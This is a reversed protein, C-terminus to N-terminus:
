ASYIVRFEGKVTDGFDTTVTVVVSYTTNAVGGAVAVKALTRDPGGPTLTLAEVNSKTASVVSAIRDGAALLNVFDLALLVSESAQLRAPVTAIVSGSSRKPLIVTFEEAVPRQDSPASGGVEAAVADAIDTIDSTELSLTANANVRSSAFVLQDTKTKIAATDSKAAAVDASVSSAPTGIKTNITNAVTAATSANTSATSAASAATSASGAITSLVADINDKILKGISGATTLGSVLAAWIVGTLTTREGSTLTMADGAQSATKTADYAITLTMASGVAAPSAPLNDTKAKIAAVETDIYSAITSLTSSISSFSAAIDSADAPDTPLNDTKAKIAAVETDVYGAITGLLTNLASNGFTGNNVIAYCDGTQPTNSTYTTLTDALTVRPITAGTAFSASTIGSAAVSGVSGTINGGVNGTVSGVAGSVSGVSGSVNGGVNGTVSAVASAAVATGISTKMTSTLDGSTPANTLNTTTTITGATINATSALTAGTPFTVTGANVVPNTKITQVDGQVYQCDITPAVIRKNTTEAFTLTKRGASTFMNNPLDLRYWGGEREKLGGATNDNPHATTIAALDSLTISSSAVNAGGSWKCAPFDAAVKGTLAFGSDDLFQVDVSISSAGPAVIM